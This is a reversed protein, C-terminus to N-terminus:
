AELDNVNAAVHGCCCLLLVYSYSRYITDSCCSRTSFLPVVNEGNGGIGDFGSADGGMGDTM